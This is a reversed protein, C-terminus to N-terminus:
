DIKVTLSTHDNLKRNSHYTGPLIINKTITSGILYNCYDATCIPQSTKGLVNTKASVYSGTGLTSFLIYAGPGIHCFDKIEVCHSLTAYHTLVVFNGIITNDLIVNFDSIYTGHGITVNNGIRNRSSIVSFYHPNHKKLSEVIYTKLSVSASATIFQRNNFWENTNNEIEEIRYIECIRYQRFYNFLTINIYSNGIFCLIKENDYWIKYELNSEVTIM